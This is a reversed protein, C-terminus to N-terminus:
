FPCGDTPPGGFSTWILPTPLVMRRERALARSRRHVTRGALDYAELRCSDAGDFEEIM